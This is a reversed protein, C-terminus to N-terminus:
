QTVSDSSKALARYYIKEYQLASREWSFDEKMANKMLKLWLNKNQYIALAKEVIEILARSSYEAFKFGNGKETQPDFERITDDLGGTARVIPITGYKLSYMQNLGCPEYRSPMLFMDSGAEIKHALMNDFAIKIGFRGKHKEGLEYFQKEYKGEGQGLLVLFLEMKMLEDVADVLLDCGKQEALRTIMGIVPTEAQGKLKFIKMLEEKCKKKGSLDKANYNASIHPDIEPNWENYDVGNLVGYIDDSRDRLFGDLGHGHKPTQIEQAYKVSVTTIIDSFVIGGKIFNMKGYCELSKTSFLFLPLGSIVMYEKPFIAQYALNHLTFITRSNRFFPDDKYLSKLYVPLLSTQWDNCHFVDPQFGILKGLHLIGRTFFIFRDPNDPYQGESTGYLMRRDFFKDRKLFYILLNHGIELYFVKDKLLQGRLPVELLRGLPKLKFAGEMVSRYMPMVIRVQHGLSAIAAPLSASVDALGGTKAFPTVESSAFLIKLKKM